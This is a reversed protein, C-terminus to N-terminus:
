KPEVVGAVLPAQRRGAMEVAIASKEAEPLARKALPFVVEDELRIHQEYMARLRAMAGRYDAVEAAALTGEALYKRGLREVQAHLPDAARHDDELQRLQQMVARVGADDLRRLRPFLSEEEDATHKTAADRFYSLAAGLARAKEEDVPQDIVKGVAELVGLFSEIRRHCDSLLGTPESFSHTTAGIQVPM